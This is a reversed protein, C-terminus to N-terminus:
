SESDVPNVEYGRSSRDAIERSRVVIEFDGVVDRTEEDGAGEKSTVRCEVGVVTVPSPTPDSILMYKYRLEEVRSSGGNGAATAWHSEETSSRGRVKESSLTPKEEGLGATELPSTPPVFICKCEDEKWGSSGGISKADGSSEVSGLWYESESAPLGGGGGSDEWTRGVSCGVCGSRRLLVVLTFTCAGM